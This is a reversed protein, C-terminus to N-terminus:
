CMWTSFTAAGDPGQILIYFHKFLFQLHVSLCLPECFYPSLCLILTFSLNCFHFPLLSKLPLYGQVVASYFCEGQDGDWRKRNLLFQAESIEQQKPFSTKKKGQGYGGGEQFYPSSHPSLQVHRTASGRELWCCFLFTSLSWWCKSEFCRWWDRDWYRGKINLKFKRGQTSDM